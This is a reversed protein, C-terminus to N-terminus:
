SVDDDDDDDDDYSNVFDILKLNTTSIRELSKRECSCEGNSHNKPKLIKRLM